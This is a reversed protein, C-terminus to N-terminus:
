LLGLSKLFPTNDVKRGLFTEVLKEEDYSGGVALIEKRFKKGIQPNFIGAKKFEGFFDQAIVQSWLYGYYGAAYGSMIHDFSAQPYTDKTMPLMTIKKKLKAWEKTTNVKGKSTHYKMDIQALFNQRIYFNASFHNKADLMKNITEEDLPNGTKYHKSITKLVQPSWAWNELIQSPTEVFDGAVATGSISSYPAETLVSHLVHGFEHFLTEVEGHKLLSPMNKSPPNLNAVIATFPKQYSGDPKREGDVLDFCAAHKYKGGRPFLDMYVYAIDKKSETDVIKYAKVDKHWVPIKVQEFQVGFLNGFIELMGAIVVDTQFYEKIKEPDIDYFKKKHLNTWYGADWATFPKRNKGIEEERFKKLAALEKKALPKLKKELNTLFYIVNQPKKAMKTDLRSAAYNKYGLLKASNQRLKLSDELIGINVQGGRRSFKFELEQRAKDDSANLMFPNYDPYDLTIIYKGDKTKKLKDIYDQPLGDLEKLSVELSDEYERVNQSFNISNRARKKAIAKFKELQARPLMLGSKKFGLMADKLMKAEIEGLKPNGDAFDKFAQYIDKRTGVEVMYQSIDQELALAAERLEKDTSVYALFGAQGIANEYKDFIQSYLNFTNDWTRKEKPIAVFKLLDGELIKRAEAQRPALEKAKYNFHLVGNKDFMDFRMNGGGAVSSHFLFILFLALILKLKM